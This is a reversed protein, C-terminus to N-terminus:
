HDLPNKFVRSMASSGSPHSLLSCSYKSIMERGLGLSLAEYIGALTNGVEM